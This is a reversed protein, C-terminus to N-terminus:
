PCLAQQASGRRTVAHQGIADLGNCASCGSLIGRRVVAYEVSRDGFALQGAPSTHGGARLQAGPSACAGLRGVSACGPMRWCSTGEGACGVECAPVSGRGLQAACAGQLPHARACGLVASQAPGRGQLGESELRTRLQSPSLQAAEGEKGPVAGVAVRRGGESGTRLHPAAEPRTNWGHAGALGALLVSLPERLRKSVWSACSFQELGTSHQVLRVLEEWCLARPLHCVYAGNELLVVSEFTTRLLICVRLRCCKTGALLELGKAHVCLGVGCVASLRTAAPRRVKFRVGPIDGVAHGRRGFGAILVEDQAVAAGEM